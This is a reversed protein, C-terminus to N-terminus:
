LGLKGVGISIEASSALFISECVRSRHPHRLPLHFLHHVLVELGETRRPLHLRRRGRATCEGHAPQLISRTLAFTLDSPGHSVQYTCVLLPHALHPFDTQICPLNTYPTPSYSSTLIILNPFPLGIMPALRNIDTPKMAHLLSPLVLIQATMETVVIPYGDCARSSSFKAGM